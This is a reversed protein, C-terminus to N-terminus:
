ILEVLLSVSTPEFYHLSLFALVVYLQSALALITSSAM